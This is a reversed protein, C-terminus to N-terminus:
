WRTKPLDPGENPNVNASLAGDMPELISPDDNEPKNVRTSIPWIKMPESPFPILLDCPDPDLPSLWRDYQIPPIIVPM